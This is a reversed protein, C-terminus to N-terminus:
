TASPSWVKIQNRMMKRLETMWVVRPFMQANVEDRPRNWNQSPAAYLSYPIGLGRATERGGSRGQRSTARTPFGPRHGAATGDM